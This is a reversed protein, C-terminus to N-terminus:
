CIGFSVSYEGNKSNLIYEQEIEDHQVSFENIDLELNGEESDITLINENIEVLHPLFSGIFNNNSYRTSIVIKRGEIMSEEIEEVLNNIM